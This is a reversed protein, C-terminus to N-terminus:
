TLPITSPYIYNEIGNMRFHADEFDAQRGLSKDGNRRKLCYLRGVFQKSLKLRIRQPVLQNLWIMLHITQRYPQVVLTVKSQAANAQYNNTELDDKAKSVYFQGLNTSFPGCPFHFITSM